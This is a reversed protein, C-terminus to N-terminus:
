SIRLITVYYNLYYSTSAVVLNVGYGVASISINTGQTTVLGYVNAYSPQAGCWAVYATATVSSGGFPSIPVNLANVTIMIVTNGSYGNSSNNAILM